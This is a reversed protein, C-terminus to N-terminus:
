GTRAAAAGAVSVRVYFKARRVEEGPTAEAQGCQMVQLWQSTYGQAKGKVGGCWNAHATHGFAGRPVERGVYVVAM